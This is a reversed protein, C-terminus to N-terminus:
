ASDSGRMVERLELSWAQRCESAVWNQLLIERSDRLVVIRPSTVVPSVENRYLM